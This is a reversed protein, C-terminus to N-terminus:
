SVNNKSFYSTIFEKAIEVVKEEIEDAVPFREVVEGKQFVIIEGRGGSFGFDADKAELLGNVFCGMVAVEVPQNYKLLMKEVAIAVREVNYNARSCAPCAIVKPFVVRKGSLEYAANVIYRGAVIEELPDATAISVRITEGIGQALLSGIGLSSNVLSQRVTGAETVGVHLPIEPFNVRFIRNAEVTVRLNSSKLSVVVSVDACDKIREWYEGAAKVMALEPPMGRYKAPLSGTNVGVRIPKGLRAAEKAFEALFRRSFNGPNIRVKDAVELSMMAIKENAQIDAVFPVPFKGKWKARLKKLKDVDDETEVAERTIDVGNEAFKELRKEFEPNTIPVKCMNQIKPVGDGILVGGM